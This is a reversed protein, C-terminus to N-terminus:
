ESLRRNFITLGILFLVIGMTFLVVLNTGIDTQNLALKSFADTGWYTITLNTLPKIFPPFAATGFFAGGLVGMAMSIVGGVIDGQAPTRVLSAVLAGLGSAALAVALIVLALLLINSGWIFQIEGALISGVITLAIILITVQVVCIV